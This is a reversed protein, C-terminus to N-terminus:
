LLGSVDVVLDVEFFEGIDLYVVFCIVSEYIILCIEVNICWVSIEGIKCDFLVVWEDVDFQYGYEVSVLVLRLDALFYVFKGVFVVQVFIFLFELGVNECILYYCLLIGSFMLLLVYYCQM